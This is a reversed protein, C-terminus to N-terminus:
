RAFKSTGVRRTASHRPHDYQAEKRCKGRQGSTRQPESELACACESGSRLAAQMINRTSAVPNGSPEGQRSRWKHAM